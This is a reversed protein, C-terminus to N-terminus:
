DLVEFMNEQYDDCQSLDHEDSSISVSPEYEINGQENVKKPAKGFNELLSNM